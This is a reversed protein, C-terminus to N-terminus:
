PLSLNSAYGTLHQVSLRAYRRVMEPSQWGGLEQLAFLPTGDQAHWSAWTHRLDHWRFDEIGARKLAAYWAKTSVQTIRKGRYTFVYERHKALQRAVVQVADDNLPVPIARGGKSEDAHIWAVRRDLDIQSWRLGTVNSARLGTMLTFAAMDALHSPLEALLRVAEDQSLFRVRLTKQPLLTIKPAVELWEWEDVARRLLARLVSLMRNVTSNAVGEAQKARIAEHILPKTIEDLLKGNFFRGLWELHFRDSELARKHAHEQLWRTVAEDWARSPAPAASGFFPFRFQRRGLM